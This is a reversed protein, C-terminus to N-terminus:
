VASIDNVISFWISDIQKLVSVFDTAELPKLMYSDAGNQECLLKDNPSSSTTLMIVPIDKTTANSKIFRLIEHGNVTPINIDLLAIYYTQSDHSLAEFFDIAEKGDKIVIVKNIIKHDHLTETTLLIDGENDEILLINLEHM